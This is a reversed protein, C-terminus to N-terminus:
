EPDFPKFRDWCANCGVQEIVPGYRKRLSKKIMCCTNILALAIDPYFIFSYLQKHDSYICVHM